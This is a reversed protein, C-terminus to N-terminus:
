EADDVDLDILMFGLRRFDDPAQAFPGNFSMRVELTEHPGLRIAQEYPTGNMDAFVDNVFRDSAIHVRQKTPEQTLVTTRLMVLRPEGLPNQIELRPRRRCWRWARGANREEPYCGQRWRVTVPALTRQRVAPYEVGFAAAVGHAFEQIDMFAYRGDPSIIPVTGTLATIAGEIAAGSDAYGFRDLWIGSFGALALRRLLAEPALRAADRGWDGNEGTLAGWSWRLSRSHLFPRAHDYVQMRERGGDVPFDVYPLQFIMAGAPMTAEVRAVFARDRWFAEDDAAYRRVFGSTSAQDGVGVFLLLVLGADFARGYGRAVLHRRMRTLLIGVALLAFWAIFVVIRNYARINPTVFVNFLSGFGGITALLLAALTMSAAVALREDRLGWPIRFIVIALLLLFGAAGITGIMAFANENEYPFNAERLARAVERFAAIPHDPIPTLLHRLKLGYIDAESPVKFALAENPGHRSRYVTSPLLSVATAACLTALALGAVFPAAGRRTQVFGHIGSVAIFFGSFFSTYAAGLGQLACTALSLALFRLSFAEPRGRALRMVLLLVLPVFPYILPIHSVSRYFTYPLLGYLIGLVLAVGAAVGLQRFSYTAALAAAVIALLWYANLALGPWGTSLALLRLLFFDLPIGLPWALLDLGHPAALRQFHAFIGDESMAQVTATWFMADGSYILPVRLDKHWLQLTGATLGATVIIEAGYFILSRRFRASSRTVAHATIAPGFERSAGALPPGLDGSRPM